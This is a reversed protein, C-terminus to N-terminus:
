RPVGVDCKCVPQGDATCGCSAIGNKAKNGPVHCCIGDIQCKPGPCSGCKITACEALPVPEHADGPLLASVDVPTQNIEPAAEGSNVGMVLALALAVVFTAFIAFGKKM